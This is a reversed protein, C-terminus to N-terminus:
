VCRELTMRVGRIIGLHILPPAQRLRRAFIWLRKPVLAEVLKEFNITALVDV